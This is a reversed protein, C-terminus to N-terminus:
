AARQLHRQEVRSEDGSGVGSIQVMLLGIFELMVVWVYWMESLLELCHVVIWVGVNTMRSKADVGVVGTGVAFDFYVDGGVEV